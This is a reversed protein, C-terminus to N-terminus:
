RTERQESHTDCYWQYRSLMVIVIVIVIILVVGLRTQEVTLINM